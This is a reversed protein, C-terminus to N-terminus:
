EGRECKLHITKQDDLRLIVPQHMPNSRQGAAHRKLWVLSLLLGLVAGILAFVDQRATGADAPVLVMGLLAGALVAALPIGYISMSNRLLAHEEVGVVVNDGVTAGIRNDAKFVSTHNFLKGWLSIGCGRTKGCLGCPRQRVIELMAEDKRVDVVIAHEEIM